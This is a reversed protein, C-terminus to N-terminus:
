QSKQRKRVRHVQLALKIAELTSATDAIGKGAIDYATGHDPSTRIIPMGATYNVGAGKTIHKFPILGQDHYMALTADYRRYADHVFFGDAAFPGVVRINQNRAMEMAPEIITQEEIGLLGGDGAHPNLGLLAIVPHQIGFDQQLVQMLLDLKRLILVRSLRQSVLELPIHATALTLRFEGYVFLMLNDEVGFREALYETHGPFKFGEQQIVLKNIPLTVIADLQEARLGRVAAELSEFAVKGATPDATGPEPTYDTPTAVLNLQAPEAHEISPVLTPRHKLKLREAYDTLVAEPAFVIPICESYLEPQAFLRLIIEAGIGNPDGLTLGLKPLDQM